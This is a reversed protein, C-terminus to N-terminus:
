YTQPANLSQWFITHPEITWYISFSLSAFHYYFCFMFFPEFFHSFSSSPLNVVASNQNHYKKRLFKWNFIQQFLVGNETKMVHLDRWFFQFLRQNINTEPAASLAMSDDHWNSLVVCYVGINSRFFVPVNYAFIVTNTKKGWKQNRNASAIWVFRIIVIGIRNCTLM